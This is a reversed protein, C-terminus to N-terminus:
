CILRFLFTEACIPWPRLSYSNQWHYDARRSMFVKAWRTVDNGGCSDVECVCLRTALLSLVAIYYLIPVFEIDVFSGVDYDLSSAAAAAKKM